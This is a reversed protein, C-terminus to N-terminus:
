YDIIRCRGALQDGGNQVAVRLDLHHTFGHIAQDADLLIAEAHTEAERLRLSADREAQSRAEERLEQAALLAENLAKEREQYRSLQEEIFTVRDALRREEGVLQELRDAVLDLFSDVQETDYGRVARKFDEKKKRVDLPTLDIM